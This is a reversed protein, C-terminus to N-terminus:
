SMRKYIYIVRNCSPCRHMIDQCSEICFPIFCCLFCRSDTRDQHDSNAPLPPVFNGQLQMYPLRPHVILFVQLIYCM